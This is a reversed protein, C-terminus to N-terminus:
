QQGKWDMEAISNPNIKVSAVKADEVATSTKNTENQVSSDPRSVWDRTWMVLVVTSILLLITVVDLRKSLFQNASSDREVDSERKIGDPTIEFAWSVILSVVFGGCLLLFLTKMAWSPAGLIDAALDFVQLVFWAGVVYAAAVRVVNRRRLEAFWGQLGKKTM